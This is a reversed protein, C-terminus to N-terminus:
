KTKEVTCVTGEQPTHDVCEAQYRFTGYYIQACGSLMLILTVFSLMLGTFYIRSPAEKKM